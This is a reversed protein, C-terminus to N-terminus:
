SSGRSTNGVKSVKKVVKNRKTGTPTKKVMRAARKKLPTHEPM